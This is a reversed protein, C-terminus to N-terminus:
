EQETEDIEELANETETYTTDLLSEFNDEGFGDFPINVKWEGDVLLLEIDSEGRDDICCFTCTATTGEVNCKVNSVPKSDAFAAGQENALKAMQDLFDILGLTSETAHKRATEFDQSNMADIFIPVIAEPKPVNTCASVLLTIMCTLFIFKKM